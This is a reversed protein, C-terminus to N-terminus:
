EPGIFGICAHCTSVDPTTSSSHAIATMIQKECVNEKPSSVM